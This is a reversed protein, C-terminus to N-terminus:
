RNELWRKAIVAIDFLVPIELIVRKIRQKLGKGKMLKKESVRDFHQKLVRLGIKRDNLIYIQNIASLYWTSASTNFNKNRLYLSFSIIAEINGIMAQKSPSHYLSNSRQFYYYIERDVVSIKECQDLILPYIMLDEGCNLSPYRIKEFIECKYLKGWPAVPVFVPDKVSILVDKTTMVCDKMWSSFTADTHGDEYFDVHRGVAMDSGDSVIREYLSRVADTSIWDDSDVFMIFDGSCIDLGSNRAYGVGGNEKHLVKIRGDTEAYHDCIMGCSDPSGDDVLIIELNTYTQTLISDICRALHKEVKYVPVIISILAAM